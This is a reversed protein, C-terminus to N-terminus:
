VNFTIRIFEEAHRRYVRADHPRAENNILEVVAAANLTRREQMKPYEIGVRFDRFSKRAIMFVDTMRKTSQLWANNPTRYELGYPKPRFAGARGYLAKREKDEDLLYSYLGLSFDLHRVFSCCLKMYWEDVVEDETWGFHIHGAATRLNTAANPAVNPMGTYANFDPDCGLELAVAPQEAMYEPPFFHHSKPSIGYGEPLNKVLGELVTTVARSFDHREVCPDINVELAMGDVQMAGMPLPHPNAKTGPIVGHASRVLGQENVMFMEPDAGIKANM